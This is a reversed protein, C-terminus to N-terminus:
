VGEVSCPADQEGTLRHNLCVLFNLAADSVGELGVRDLEGRVRAAAEGEDGTLADWHLAPVVPRNRWRAGGTEDVGTVRRLLAKRTM